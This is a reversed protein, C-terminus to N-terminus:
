KMYLGALKMDSDFTMTYTVSINEYTVIIQGIVFHKNRQVIEQIYAKGFQKKEGWKDSIQKKADGLIGENLSSAMQPIAREQLSSYDGKDLLEVTERMAEEVEPKSFYKSTEIDVGKPLVWYVLGALVMLVLIIPFIIKVIRNRKYKKQEMPSISENFSKAIEEVTGMQSFINELPEGENLRAKIDMLLQKEIEKKKGGSCKIRRIIKKVYKEATMTERMEACHVM